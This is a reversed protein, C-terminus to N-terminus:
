FFCTNVFECDVIVEFVLQKALRELWKRQNPQWSHSTYIRDMAQAVRQDFPQLAEGLAARRIHGIISAAIDQNSQQRVASQLNAESYGEGDLLLKVEKLQGRTLDRPRKVVVALAASQNLQQEVFHKFSDLYDESCTRQDRGCHNTCDRTEPRIGCCQCKLRCLAQM